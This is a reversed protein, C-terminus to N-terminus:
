EFTVNNWGANNWQSNSYVSSFLDRVLSYGSNMRSGSINNIGDCYWEILGINNVGPSVTFKTLKQGHLRNMDLSTQANGTKDIYYLDDLYYVGPTLNSKVFLDKSNLSNIIISRGSPDIIAITVGSKHIGDVTAGGLVPYGSANLEVSGVLLAMNSPSPEAIQSCSAFSLMVLSIFIFYKKM